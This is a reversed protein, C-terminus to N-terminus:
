RQTQITTNSHDKLAFKFAMFDTWTSFIHILHMWIMQCLRGYLSYYGIMFESNLKITLYLQALDTPSVTNKLFQPPYLMCLEDVLM